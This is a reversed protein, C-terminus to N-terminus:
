LQFDIINNLAERFFHRTRLLNSVTWTLVQFLTARNYFAVSFYTWNLCKYFYVVTLTAVNFLTSIDDPRNEPSSFSNLIGVKCRTPCCNEIESANRWTAFSKLIVKLRSSQFFFAQHDGTADRYWYRNTNTSITLITKCRCRFRVRRWKCM